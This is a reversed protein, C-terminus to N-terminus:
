LDTIIQLMLINKTTKPPATKHQHCGARALVISTKVHILQAKTQEINAVGSKASAHGAITRKVAAPLLDQVLNM